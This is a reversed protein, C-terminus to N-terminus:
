TTAKSSAPSALDVDVDVLAEGTAELVDSANAVSRLASDDLGLRAAQATDMATLARALLTVHDRIRKDLMAVVGTVHRSSRGGRVHPEVKARAHALKVLSKWTNHVSKEVDEDLPVDRTQRRLEAGDLLAGRAPQPLGSATVDLLHAVPDDADVLLPLGAIIAATACAVGYVLPTAGTYAATIAGSMGGGVLCLLVHAARPLNGRVRLTREAFVLMIFVAGAAVASTTGMVGAGLAAFAGGAVSLSNAHASALLALAVGIAVLAGVSIFPGYRNAIPLAFFAGAIAALYVLRKM